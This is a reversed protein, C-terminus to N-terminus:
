EFMHSMNYCMTTIVTKIDKNVFETMKYNQTLKSIKRRM